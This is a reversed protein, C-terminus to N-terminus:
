LKGVYSGALYGTSFAAQINYGGSIGDIDIVEGCFYLGKIIKSQMTKPDIEKTAVGGKTVMAEELPLTKIVTVPLRKLLGIIKLREERTIQCLKKNEDVRSLNIFVLILKRPLLEKLYNKYLLATNKFDKLLRAELEQESLAPKLDITLEVEGNTLWDSIKGSLDLVLPGSIGFHTFLLESITSKIKHKGQKFTLQINILTLGQLEKVFQEKTVLPVLGAKLDIITHGLHKIIDFFEGSSGTHSFSKGGTAVIIADAVYIKGNDLVVSKVKAREVLIDKVLSNCIIKVNYDTLYKKLVELVSSAKDDAPFIRDQREVKLALGKDEFFKILDPYFFYKFADRLFEGNHINKIFESIGKANSLNGRTKGSILLKNALTPKKEFLIVNKKHKAAQIAAMIGAPGAGIVIVDPM